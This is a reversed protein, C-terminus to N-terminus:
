DYDHVKEVDKHHWREKGKVTRVHYSDGDVGLIVGTRNHGPHHVSDGRQHRESDAKQRSDDHPEVYTGDKKTYGEVHTKLLLMIPKRKSM